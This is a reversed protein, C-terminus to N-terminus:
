GSLNEEFASKKAGSAEFYRNKDNDLAAEKM